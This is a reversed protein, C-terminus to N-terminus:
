PSTSVFRARRGIMSFGLQAYIRAASPNNVNVDLLVHDGGTAQVRRLVEVVLASAIGRARWEPQVGVMSIYRDSYVIFGAPRAGDYALFSLEPRFDEDDTVWAVWEEPSWGPYGPRERFAAEYVDFFTGALAPTWPVLTMGPPLPADPLPTHLDRRMVDEVFQQTFGHQTYLRIATETLSESTLALVRPRDDPCPALLARAQAVSWRLLFSGLGRRRYDPHVQGVINARYEQATDARQVAAAAVLRGGADFAGITTGPAAPLYRPQVFADTAALPLGGDAALCTASLATIATLDASDLPRWSLGPTPPPPQESDVNTMHKNKLIQM